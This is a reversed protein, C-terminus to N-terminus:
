RLSVSLAVIRQKGGTGRRVVLDQRALHVDACHWTCTPATRTVGEQTRLGYAYAKRKDWAPTTERPARSAAFPGYRHCGSRLAPRRPQRGPVAIGM